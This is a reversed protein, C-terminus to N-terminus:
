GKFKDYAQALKTDYRNEAYGPGNYRKAFSAWDQNVLYRDLKNALVFAAFAKLQEGESACMANVFQQISEFGCTKYNFGMIQFLGWSASMLAAERDLESALALRQKEASWSKGYFQRTWKPYSITPYNTSFKGNTLKHFWHGEFLTKPFGEPDFGSGRSEVETVAKVAAVDCNLQQAVEVYDAETLKQTETTM